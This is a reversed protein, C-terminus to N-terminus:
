LLISLRLSSLILAATDEWNISSSLGQLLDSGRNQIYSRISDKITKRLQRVTSIPLNQLSLNHLWRKLRDRLELSQMLEALRQNSVEKEDLCFTRLRTLTNRM